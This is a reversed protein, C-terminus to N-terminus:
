GLTEHPGDIWGTAVSRGGADVFRLRFTAPHRMAFEFSGLDDPTVEEVSPGTITPQELLMKGDQPPSLYGVVRGALLEFEFSLEGLAFTMMRAGISESRVGATADIASDHLLAAELSDAMVMDYGVMILEVQSPDPATEARALALEELLQDDNEFWAATM